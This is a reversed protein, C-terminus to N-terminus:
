KTLAMPSLGYRSTSLYETPRDQLSDPWFEGQQQWLATWGIYQWDEMKKDLSYFMKGSFMNSTPSDYSRRKDKRRRQQSIEDQQEDHNILHM